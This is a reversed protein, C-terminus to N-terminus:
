IIMICSNVGLTTFGGHVTLAAQLFLGVPVALAVRWGLIVGLLGNLLLHVSTPGLNVHILSAVFFVATLLATQAIEEEPFRRRGMWGLLWDIAVASLALIGAGVFGGVLWPGTLVGDSIHVAWLAFSSSPTFWSTDM